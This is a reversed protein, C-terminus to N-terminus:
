VVRKVSEKKARVRARQRQRHNEREPEPKPRIYETIEYWEVKKFMPVGVNL